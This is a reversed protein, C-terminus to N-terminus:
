FPVEKCPRSGLNPLTAVLAPSPSKTDVGTPAATTKQPSNHSRDGVSLAISYEIAHIWRVTLTIAGISM